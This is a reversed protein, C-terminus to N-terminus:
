ISIRSNKKVNDEFLVFPQFPKNTYQEKCGLDLIKSFGTSNSKYKGINMIPNVERLNYYKFENLM